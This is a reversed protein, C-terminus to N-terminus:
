RVGCKDIVECVYKLLTENTYKHKAQTTTTTRRTNLIAPLMCQTHEHTTIIM